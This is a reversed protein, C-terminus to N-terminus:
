CNTSNAVGVAHEHVQAQNGARMSREIQSLKAKILTVLLDIPYFLYSAPISEGRLDIRSTGAMFFDGVGVIYLPWGSATPGGVSGHALHPLHPWMAANLTNLPDSCLSHERDELKGHYSKAM